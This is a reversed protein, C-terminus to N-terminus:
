LLIGQCKYYLMDMLIHHINGEIVGKNIVDAILLPLAIDGGVEMLLGLPGLIFYLGNPKIYKRFYNM